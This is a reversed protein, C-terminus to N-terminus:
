KFTYTKRKVIKNCSEKQEDKNPKKTLLVLSKLYEYETKSLCNKIDKKSYLFGIPSLIYKYIEEVEHVNLYENFGLERLIYEMKIYIYKDICMKEQSFLGGIKYNPSTYLLDSTTGDENISFLIKRCATKYPIIEDNKYENKVVRGVYINNRCISINKNIIKKRIYSDTEINNLLIIM